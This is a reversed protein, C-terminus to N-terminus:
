SQNPYVRYSKVSVTLHHVTSLQLIFFSAEFSLLLTVFSGPLFHISPSVSIGENPSGV